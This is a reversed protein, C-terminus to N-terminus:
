RAGTQAKLQRAVTDAAVVLLSTPNKSCRLDIAGLLGDNDVKNGVDEDSELLYLNLATMYGLVWSAGESSMRKNEARM